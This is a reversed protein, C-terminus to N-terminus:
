ASPGRCGWRMGGTSSKRAQLITSGNPHEITQVEHDQGAFWATLAKSLGTVDPRPIPYSRMESM